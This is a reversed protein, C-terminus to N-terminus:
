SNVGAGLPRLRLVITSVVLLGVGYGLLLTLDPGHPLPAGPRLLQFPPLAKHIAMLWGPLVDAGGPRGIAGIMNQMFSMLFVFLWGKSSFMSLLLTAGGVLLYALGIQGTLDWTLGTSDHLALALGLGLVLPCLMVVAAGVLWRQAYYWLPTMPKSFLSRYYGRELDLGVIGGITMLITVTLVSNWVGIQMMQAVNEPLPMSEAGFAGGRTRTPVHMKEAFRWVILCVVGIAFVFWRFPWVVADRGFWPLYRLPSRDRTM